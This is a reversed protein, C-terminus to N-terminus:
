FGMEDASPGYSGPIPIHLLRLFVGLQARHHIMQAFAHRIAEYRTFVMLVQEGMQMTWTSLLEEEMAQELRSRSEAASKELLELLDNTSSVLAPQYPSAAFDLVSTNLVTAVWGSIEALHTTLQRMSMSKPHPKWDWQDNPVRQLMKRTTAVEADM